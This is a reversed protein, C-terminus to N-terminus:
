PRATLIRSRTSFRTATSRGIAQVCCRVSPGGNRSAPDVSNRADAVREFTKSVFTPPASYRSGPASNSQGNAGRSSPPM